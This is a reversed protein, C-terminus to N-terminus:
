FALGLSRLDSEAQEAGVFQFLQMGVNKAGDVNHPMDDFFVTEGAVLGYDSLLRNYIEASPKMCGLEASVAAGEFFPWFDYKSKLYAVIEHVNDTLAFLRYQATSLRSILDTTGTVLDQTDKVHFFLADVEEQSFGLAERYSEKADAETIEGRNLQYWLDHGFVSRVFTQNVKDPSYTRKAILMPDWRVVVNGIDFVVNKIQSSTM